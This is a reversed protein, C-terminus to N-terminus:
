RERLSENINKILPSLVYAIIRREGTKIEVTGSMGPTLQKEKNDIKMSTTNLSVKVSYFLGKAASGTNNKDSGENSALSGTGNGSFDIADRSVHSIIAPVTGYKTYDFAEIKVTAIQGDQIFGIDKNEVYAELEVLNKSPVILMLPQAPSVVGGLTHVTLQQVVGDVPSYIDLQDTRAQAKNRDQVAGSWIKTAQFLDDQAIKATETTLATLQTRADDLQGQLDIRAQEKESYAHESIDRNKALLAYDEARRVALPLADEYRKIQSLARGRKSMYDRWLDQLHRAENQYHGANIEAMPSLVPDQLTSLSRM